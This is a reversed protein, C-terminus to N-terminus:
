SPLVRLQGLQAHARSGRADAACEDSQPQAGGRNLRLCPHRQDHEIRRRM